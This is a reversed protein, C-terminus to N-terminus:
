SIICCPSGGGSNGSADAYHEDADWSSKDYGLRYAAAQQQLTLSDWERGEVPWTADTEWMRQTIGLSQAAQRQNPTLGGWGRACIQKYNERHNDREFKINSTDQQNSQSGYPNHVPASTQAYPNHTQQPPSYGQQPAGYGMQQQPPAGYGMQQQAGGYPAPPAGYPGPPGGVGGNTGNGMAVGYSPPPANAQQHNYAPVTSGDNFPM